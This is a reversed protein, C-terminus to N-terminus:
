RVLEDAGLDPESDRADGDIDEPCVARLDLGANVVAASASPGLRLFEPSDPDLSAFIGTDALTHNNSVDCGSSGMVAQSSGTVINNAVQGTDSSRRQNIGIAMPGAMTNHVVTVNSVGELEIGTDFGTFGASAFLLNNRVVTDPQTSDGMGVGVGRSCDIIVNNQVLNEGSTSWFHVAHEAIDVERGECYIGRFVNNEVVWDFAMHGDVGGTYCSSYGGYDAVHSRGDATLEVLSCALRGGRPGYQGSSDANLKVQQERNDVLHLDYLVTDTTDGADTGTVHVAHNYAHTLTLEAITIGSAWVNFITGNDLDNPTDDLDLTVDERRGSESRITLRPVTVAMPEVVYTGDAIFVTEGEAADGEVAAKLEAASSVVRSPEDAGPHPLPACRDVPSISGASGGTNRGDRGGTDSAATGAAGGTSTQGGGSHDGATAGGEDGAGAEGEASRGAGGDARDSGREACGQSVALAVPLACAWRLRTLKSRTTRQMAGEMRGLRDM